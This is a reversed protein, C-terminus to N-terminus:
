RANGHRFRHPGLAGIAGAREIPGFVSTAASLTTLSERALKAAEEATPNVSKSDISIKMLAQAELTNRARKM